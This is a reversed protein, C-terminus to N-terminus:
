SQRFEADLAKRLRRQVDRLHAKSTDDLNKNTSITAIRKHLKESVLRMIPHPDAPM